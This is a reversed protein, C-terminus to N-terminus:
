HYFFSGCSLLGVSKEEEDMDRMGLPLSHAQGEWCVEPGPYQEKAEGRASGNEKALVDWSAQFLQGLNRNLSNSEKQSQYIALMQEKNYRVDVSM